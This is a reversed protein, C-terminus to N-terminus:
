KGDGRWSGTECSGCETQAVNVMGTYKLVLKNTVIPLLFLHLIRLHFDDRTVTAAPSLIVAVSM